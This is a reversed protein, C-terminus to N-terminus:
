PFSQFQTTNLCVQKRSNSYGYLKEMKRDTLFTVEEACCLRVIAIEEMPSIFIEKKLGPLFRSWIGTLAIYTLQYTRKSMQTSHVTMSMDLSALHFPHSFRTFQSRQSADVRDGANKNDLVLIVVFTTFGLCPYIYSVFVCANASVGACLSFM